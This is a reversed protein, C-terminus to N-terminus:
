IIQKNTQANEQATLKQQWDKTKCCTKPKSNEVTTSLKPRTKTKDCTDDNTNSCMINRESFRPQEPRGSCFYQNWDKHCVKDKHDEQKTDFSCRTAMKKERKKFTPSQLNQFKDKNTKQDNDGLEKQQKKIM